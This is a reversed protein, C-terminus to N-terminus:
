ISSSLPAKSTSSAPASDESEGGSTLVSRECKQEGFIKPVKVSEGITGSECKQMQLSGSTLRRITRWLHASEKECKQDGFFSKRKWM